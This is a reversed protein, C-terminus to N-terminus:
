NTPEAFIFIMAKPVTDASKFVMKKIPKVSYLILRSSDTFTRMPHYERKTGDETLPNTLSPPPPPQNPRVSTGHSAPALSGSPGLDLANKDSKLTTLDKDAISVLDVIAQKQDIPIQPTM